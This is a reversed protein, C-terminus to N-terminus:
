DACRDVVLHAVTYGTVFYQLITVNHIHIDSNDFITPMAIAAAHKQHTFARDGGLTQALDGIFGHPFAYLLHFWARTQTVYTCRYLFKGFPVAVAHHAFKAPMTYSLTKM